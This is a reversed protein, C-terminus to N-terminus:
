FLDVAVKWRVNPNQTLRTDGPSRVLHHSTGVPVRVRREGLKEITSILCCLLDKATPQLPQVDTISFSQPSADGEPLSVALCVSAGDSCCTPVM